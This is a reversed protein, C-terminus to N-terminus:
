SLKERKRLSCLRKEVGVVVVAAVLIGCRTRLKLPQLPAVYFSMRGRGYM